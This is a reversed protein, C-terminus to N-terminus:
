HELLFCLERLSQYAVHCLMLPWAFERVGMMGIEHLAFRSV